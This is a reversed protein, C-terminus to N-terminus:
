IEVQFFLETAKTQILHRRRLSQLSKVKEKVFYNILLPRNRGQYQAGMPVQRHYLAKGIERM